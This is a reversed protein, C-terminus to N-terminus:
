EYRVAESAPMRSMRYAPYVGALLAAALAILLAQVFVGPAVSIQLTWGFSRLNIIYVLILALAYGAPMALLGAVLGMLGTEMMVLRWLQRGTMGIARLIGIERQKELQLLLLANLVGIFAVVTALIRLAATIAFTRDFVEMVERRLERNPRITLRQDTNLRARLTQAAADADAGEPLRIAIATIGAEQWFARYVPQYMVVNGMSSSYDYYIGIVRFSRWGDVTFLEIDDGTKLGTRNALPESILVSGAEFAQALADGRAAVEAFLREDGVRRNSSALVQVPGFRSDVSASRLTHVQEFEPVAEIQELVAPDILATSTNAVFSPVSIYVDGQLTQELWVVVTYRFSDIMLGVGITVGVAVMLAAVAISTRSLANILNRPAMRGLWGFLRGTLPTIVRVLAVLLLASLMAFGVLVAFTGGFGFFLRGGPVAFAALGILIVLVGAVASGKVLKQTKSEIGSRFLALRPPVSAAEWAPPVATLVTALLGVLGGKVLSEVPFGVEQVTTTFYLDNVTQSVMAVTSRGLLIGMGIGLLAGFLGVLFAETLVLTFIERRTVGLCRLTGFLPRRQVVSFTITNYILFLGVVLALMSLASLNLRFAETMEAVAGARAEAEVLRANEPLRERIQTVLPGDDEPLLLDIRELRGFWGTLEQATAIDVLILGELTRRNFADSPELVGSLFVTQDHGNIELSFSEGIELGFREAVPASLLVAGPRTLFATLGNLDLNEGRDLFSRFTADVFPDIGLLQFPQGGLQPSAAYTTIVPAAEVPLGSRQLDVYIAEDLGDPGGIIQHTTRGTVQESSLVFAREASANALDIAVMVAVGLAIGLVMLVSQWRRNLLHRWGARRLGGPFFPVEGM